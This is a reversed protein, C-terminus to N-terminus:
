DAKKVLSFYIEFLACFLSLALPGLIFGVPGFLALGGLVSLIVLLPHLRMGRGVIKPGLFNDILGVALVGWITMGAAPLFHGSLYLYLIAPVIVLSTGLGPILATIAAVTGWLVPNPVGFIALGAATSIGQIFAIVLNGKVVSNIALELKNFILEDETDALPSVAMVTKKFERGDKLLYYFALLFIFGSALMKAFNSFIAGINQILGGAFQRLYQGLDFSFNRTEPILEHLRSTADRFLNLIVERGSNDALSFYLQRAEKFIQMGLLTLPALIFIIILLTTLFSALGPYRGIYKLIKQYLPQFVVAFIAALALAYAFPRFIFLALVFTGILFVLLFNLQYKHSDM